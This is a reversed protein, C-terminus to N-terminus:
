QCWPKLIAQTKALSNNKTRLVAWYRAGGRANANSDGAAMVGDRLLYRKMLAVAIDINIYPNHLEHHKTNPRVAGSSEYSVQFLGTSIILEGKGNRFNEQYEKRPQFDSERKAIAGFLHVWNEPSMGQPCFEKEGNVRPMDQVKAYLYQEWEKNPWISGKLKPSEVVPPQTPAPSPTSSCAAFTMFFLLLFYKM